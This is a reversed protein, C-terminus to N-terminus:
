SKVHTGSREQKSEAVRHHIFMELLELSYM